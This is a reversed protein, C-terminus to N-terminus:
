NALEYPEFEFLECIRVAEDSVKIDKECALIDFRSVLKGKLHSIFVFIALSSSALHAM